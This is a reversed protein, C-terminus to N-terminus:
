IESIKIFSLSSTYMFGKGFADHKFVNLDLDDILARNHTM